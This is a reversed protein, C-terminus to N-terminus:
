ELRHLLWSLARGAVRCCSHRYGAVPLYKSFITSNEVDEFFARRCPRAAISMMGELLESYNVFGGVLTFPQSGDVGSM